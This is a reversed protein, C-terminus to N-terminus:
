ILRKLLVLGVLVGGLTLGIAQGRSIGLDTSLQNFFQGFESPGQPPASNTGGAPADYRQPIPSASAASGPTYTEAEFRVTGGDIAAVSEVVSLIADKLHTASGYERGSVGEVVIFPNFYGALQYVRIGQNVYGSQVLRKRMETIAEDIERFSTDLWWDALEVGLSFRAGAHIPNLSLDGLGAAHILPAALSALNAVVGINM